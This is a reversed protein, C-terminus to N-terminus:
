DQSDTVARLYDLIEAIVEDPLAADTYAPMGKPGSRVEDQFDDLSRPLDEGSLPPGVIGGAGGPAHCSACGSRVYVQEGTLTGTELNLEGSGLGSYEYEVGVIAQPVRDFPATPDLNAHSTPRTLLVFFMGIATLVIFGVAFRPVLRAPKVSGDGGSGIELLGRAALIMLVWVVSLIVVIWGLGLGPLDAGADSVVLQTGDVTTVAFELNEQGDPGFYEVRMRDGQLARQEYGFTARGSEDTTATAVTVWGSEGGFNALFSLAMEGGIVPEGDVMVLSTVTVQEGVTVTPPADVEIDAAFAPSAFLGIAVAVFIAVSVMKTLARRLIPRMSDCTM